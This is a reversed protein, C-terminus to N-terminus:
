MMMATCFLAGPLPTTVGEPTLLYAQTRPGWGVSWSIETITVGEHNWKKGRVIQFDTPFKPLTGLHSLLQDTNIQPESSPAFGLLAPLDSFAGLDM